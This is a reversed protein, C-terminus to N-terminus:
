GSLRSLSGPNGLYRRDTAKLILKPQVAKRGAASGGAGHL